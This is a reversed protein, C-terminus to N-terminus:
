VINKVILSIVPVVNCMGGEYDSFSDQSADFGVLLTSKQIAPLLV